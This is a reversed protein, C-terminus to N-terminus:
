RKCWDKLLQLLETQLSQNKNRAYWLQVETIVDEKKIESSQNLENMRKQADEPRPGWSGLLTLDSTKLAILKPISRGGNTLFADILDPNEDRFLLRLQINDNLEALRNIMPINQAADGCWAETLVLWTMPTQCHTAAEKLDDKIVITKGLRRMRRLNLKTYEVLDISQNEGSTQNNKVLKEIQELYTTYAISEEIYKQYEM